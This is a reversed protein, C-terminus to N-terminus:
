GRVGPSPEAGRAAGIPMLPSAAVAIAAALLAGGCTAPGGPGPVADDAPVQDHRPRAADPVAASDLILQRGILQGLVVLALIGALTAFM